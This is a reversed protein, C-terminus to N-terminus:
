TSVIIILPRTNLTTSNMEGQNLLGLRRLYKHKNPLKLTTLKHDLYRQVTPNSDLRNHILYLKLRRPVIWSNLSKREKSLHSKNCYPPNVIKSQPLHAM